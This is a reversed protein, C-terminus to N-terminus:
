YEIKCRYLNCTAMAITDVNKKICRCKANRDVVWTSANHPAIYKCAPDWWYKCFACVRASNINIQTMMEKMGRIILTRSQGASM